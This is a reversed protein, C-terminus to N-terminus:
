FNFTVRATIRRPLVPRAVFYTGGTTQNVDQRPSGETVADTDFLNFANVGLRVKNGAIPIVYGADFNVVHFGELEILNNAATFNDGTYNTFLSAEIGRGSDYYFLGANYLINPQRELENGVNEPATDFDTYEHDQLTLNGEFFLHDILRVRATAEVGYAGTGVVNVQEIFGGPNNPDNIFLVQRRNSLRTYLGALSASFAFSSYKVGSEAQLISEGEYSVPAGTASNLTVSRIEPFFYGRSTNAYVNINDTLRYLGGAALAWETTSVNASQFRDNGWTVERLVNSLDPTTTDTAVTATGERRLHGNLHELRLGVDFAWRDGEVQDAIYVPYRRAKHRNNAYGAGANLLGDQSIVTQEGTTPNTVVLNVLRPRNNFEALYTTAVVVDSAVARGYFAGLTAKHKAPGTTFEKTLNLEATFDNTPRDRDLFRNAFLLYDNPVASGDDAFTFRADTLMIDALEPIAMRRQPNTVFSELTEPVNVVGDGDLFLGFQHDYNAYHSRGNIGWGDGLEKEFALGISGGQTLVGDEIDTTFPGDPTNFGLDVVNDNQVSFVSSGDNGRTRSRTNGDLPIPLYFQVKDDIYQSYLTVHGSDDPFRWRLNGRVQFGETALDTDLPGQDARYYGSVAYFLNNGIPGSVAVDGRYRSGQAGELQATGAFEEGGTRSIYNILGAVSGPGFLNSVGGRVFELREIGLDNRYYVDYASSNLGFSSMVPMGDYMLPTFQYQGGSPLARIFVNSAVEGGGAEAKITPISNLIDAQSSTGLRALDHAERTQVALPTDHAGRAVSTGTMVIAEEWEVEDDWEVEVDDGQAKEAPSTQAEASADTPPTQAGASADTPPTQADTPPTQAGASADTPPTQADAPPTQAGAP